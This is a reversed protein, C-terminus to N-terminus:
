ETGEQRYMFSPRPHQTRAELGQVPVPSLAVPNHSDSSPDQACRLCAVLVLSRRFSFLTSPPRAPCRFGFGAKTSTQCPAGVSRHRLSRGIQLLGAMADM